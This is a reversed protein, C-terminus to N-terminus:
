EELSKLKKRLDEIRASKGYARINQATETHYEHRNELFEIQHNLWQYDTFTSGFVEMEKRLKKAIVHYDPRGLYDHDADCMIKELPTEPDVSFKTANIIGCIIKVQDESYGFRPLIVKAMGIGFNENEHYRLIFGADHFLVATRLLIIDDESIGELRSYRMAAKEVNLSHPVDHYSIDEPLLSRLRNLIDMRMHEFDMSPLGCKLRLQANPSLGENYMCHEKKLSQLYFMEISGGRKLIDVNGRSETVFFDDLHEHITSTISISGSKTMGEARSAINVTDGWIDFSFKSSGIIGAVLPGMHLGIRIEWFDKKTAIAIDREKRMYDRIELAALCSRIAAEPKEETVGSVAMYADGITKIKELNYKEMIEDFRTFYKELKRILTLPKLAKAKLSFDVFDTFIVVGNNVRKPSFKGSTSLEELVSTPFINGLLQGIRQDKYYLTKFVEIKSKILNPNFPYTIYDVAGERMGKVLKMGSGNEKSVIIIYNNKILSNEKLRRINELSESSEDINVTLIGVEKKDVIEVAEDITSALIVNNGSGALIEKLGIRIKPDNDIILINIFREM